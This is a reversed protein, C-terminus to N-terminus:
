DCVKLSLYEGYDREDDAQIDLIASEAPVVKDDFDDSEVTIIHGPSTMM